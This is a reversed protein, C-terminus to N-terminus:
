IAIEKLNGFNKGINVTSMFKGFINTEFIEKIESVLGHDEKAFDLVVSDHMTFAVKSKKGKLLNMIEYANQLVIDSTTSQLLYNLAKREDVELDRGFPTEIKGNNYHKKYVDKNYLKELDYDVAKPNYLWAFFKSKMEQRTMKTGTHDRNFEHIDYDPQEQGSFALLTRIEAGNLDLELFLDNQPKVSSREEKSINLIPYSGRSTALRGTASSLMDYKVRMNAGSVSLNQRSINEVVVHIKHLIDYDKPKQVSKLVNSMAEERLSFWRHLLHDPLIEYFCLESFDIKATIAASKQAELINETAKLTVPDSSYESLSVNKLFLNVYTWKDDESLIPSHRWAVTADRLSDETNQFHFRDQCYVGYCNNEIDLTQIIKEVERM